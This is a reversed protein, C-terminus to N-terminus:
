ECKGGDVTADKCADTYKKSDDASLTEGKSTAEMYKQLETCCAGDLGEYTCKQGGYEITCGCGSLTSVMIALMICLLAKFAQGAAMM